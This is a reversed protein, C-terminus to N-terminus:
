EVGALWNAAFAALDTLDVDGDGDSDGFIPPDVPQPQVCYGFGNGYSDAHLPSGDIADPANFCFSSDTVTPSSSTNNMGGGNGNTATNGSFTCNSVTPSSLKNYMGGSQYDTTNGSFTCNSVTPSSSSNYMGGGIGDHGNVNTVTNGSFTCNSVTPSSFKNYMGGGYNATNGSFTCNSVKASSDYNIMGGGGYNATNGSFTCGTVTPSSGWNFMGGGAWGATNGSFTCNSVTPSSFKNYMGAGDGDVTGTGNTIVFGSIITDSGEGSICKIVSTTQNGDIITSTVIAPNTPDTSRLTIAKNSMNINEVYTGPMVIITQGNRSLNIAAQISTFDGGGAIDVTIELGECVDGVGNGDADAQDPNPTVPCNDSSNLVGDGDIDDDCVDGVGDSDSDAQDPNITDPCNDLSDIIGDGDSDLCDDSVTNGGGDVYGNSIQPAAPATNSCFTSNTLSPSSNYSYMGGGRVLSTNGTFTCNTMQPDSSNYNCMGGGKGDGEAHNQIFICDTLQPASSYRNYMGGGSGDSTNDSFTCGTVTPSSSQWNCMGGGTWTATNDSFTCNDVTPSSNDLNFMGGGYNDATNGSITCNSVTPSSQNYNVIGGGCNRSTGDIDVPSGTGNTILFGSIVTDSGEGSNCTIVSGSQDGDIITLTVVTPDGPDTSRLMIAKGSMNINEVYRGPRITITDGNSSATIADGITTYDYGGNIDVVIESAMGAGGFVGMIMIALTLIALIKM